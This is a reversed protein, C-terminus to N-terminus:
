EPAARRFRAKISPRSMAVLTIAPVVAASFFWGARWTTWVLLDAGSRRVNGYFWTYHVFMSFVVALVGWCGAVLLPRGVRRRAFVFAVGVIVAVDVVAHGAGLACESSLFSTFGGVTRFRAPQLCIWISTGFTVLSFVASVAAALLILRVELPLGVEDDLHYALAPRPAGPPQAAPGSETASARAEATV